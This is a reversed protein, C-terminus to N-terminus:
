APRTRESELIADIRALMDRVRVLPHLIVTMISGQDKDAVRTLMRM